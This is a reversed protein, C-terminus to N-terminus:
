LVFNSEIREVRGVFVSRLTEPLTCSAPITTVASEIILATDTETGGGEDDGGEDAMPAILALM